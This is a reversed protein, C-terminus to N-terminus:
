FIYHYSVTDIFNQISNSILLVYCFMVVCMAACLLVCECM